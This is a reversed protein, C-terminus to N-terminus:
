KKGFYIKSNIYAHIFKMLGKGTKYESLHFKYMVDLSILIIQNITSKRLVLRSM